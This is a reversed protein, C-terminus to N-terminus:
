ADRLASAGVGVLLAGLLLLPPGSGTQVSLTLDVGHPLREALELLDTGNGGAVREFPPRLTVAAGALVGLVVAISWLWRRARPFPRDLACTAGVAVAAIGLGVVVWGSVTRPLGAQTAVTRAQQEGLMTLDAVARYWPRTAAVAALAGGLVATMGALGPGRLLLRATLAADGRV